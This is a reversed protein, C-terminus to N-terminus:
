KVVAKYRISTNSKIFIKFEELSIAKAYYYGQIVGIGMKVSRDYMAKTEVGEQVVTMGIDQALETITAIIKDDREPDVGKALFLRDLKLEDMSLEKLVRFSSYGVGFDDISCRIGGAHLADVIESLKQYDEVAYTETFELTLLGDDILYRNKNGVYFNIFDPNSATVRSVNVSIPVVKDGREKAESLYKLVELYIYHDMKVIFGNSEFLSIFEAPYRYDGKQHDFWRVLAEASDVEDKEVNYKPQLFLRFENTDLADEMRAEIHENHNIQERVTETFILYPVNSDNKADECVITACDILESVTRRKGTAALCVGAAIRVKVQNDKLIDYKNVINEFVLLKNRFVNENQYDVLLLFKGDGAYGFTENGGCFTMLVDKIYKLLNVSEDTGFRDEVFHFRRICYVAVAYSRRDKHLLTMANRRFGEINPCDLTPDTLNATEEADKTKKQFLLAFVLGVLFAVIALILVTIIHGIYDIEASILNSSESLTLLYVHDDFIEIPEVVVTYNVGSPTIEITELESGRLMNRISDVTGKSETLTQLFDYINSGVELTFSEAKISSLVDGGTGVVAVASTSDQIDGVSIIDAAPVISLLGDIHISGRVPVFFAICDVGFFEEYYVSTCGAENRQSLELIMEHASVDEEVIEGNSAYAVGQSYYRLEGFSDSGVYSGIVTEVHEKTEAYEVQDVIEYLREYHIKALESVQKMDKDFNIKASREASEAYFTSSASVITILYIALFLVVLIISIIEVHKVLKKVNLKKAM